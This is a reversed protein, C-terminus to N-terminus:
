EDETDWEDAKDRLTEEATHDWDDRTRMVQATILDADPIM